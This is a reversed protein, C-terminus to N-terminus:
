SALVTLLLFQLTSSQSVSESVLEEIIIESALARHYSRTSARQRERGEFSFSSAFQFFFAFVHLFNMGLYRVYSQILIHTVLSAQPKLSSVITDFEFVVLGLLGLGWVCCLPRFRVIPINIGFSCSRLLLRCYRVLDRLCGLKWVRIMMMM